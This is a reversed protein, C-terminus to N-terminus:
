RRMTAIFRLHIKGKNILVRYTENKDVKVILLNPIQLTMGIKIDSAPDKIGNYIALQEQFSGSQYYNMTISFLTEGQKVEHFALILPDPLNLKMGVQLDTAPNTIGNFEAVKAQYSSNLYYRMTISFLTENTQVEHNIVKNASPKISPTEITIDQVPESQDPAIVQQQPVDNKVIKPSAAQELEAKLNQVSIPQKEIRRDTAEKVESLPEPKEESAEEIM